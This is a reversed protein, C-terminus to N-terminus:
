SVYKGWWTKVEKGSGLQLPSLSQIDKNKGAGFPLGSMARLLKSGFSTSNARSFFM